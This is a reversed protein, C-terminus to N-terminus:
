GIMGGGEATQVSTGNAYETQPSIESAQAEPSLEPTISQTPEGTVSASPAQTPEQTNEQPTQVGPTTQPEDTIEAQPQKTVEADSGQQTQPSVNSGAIPTGSIANEPADTINQSDTQATNAGSLMVYPINKESWVPWDPQDKIALKITQSNLLERIWNHLSLVQTDAGTGAYYTRVWQIRRSDTQEADTKAMAKVTVSGTMLYQNQYEDESDPLVIRFYEQGTVTDVRVQVKLSLRFTFADKNEFVKGATYDFVHWQKDEEVSSNKGLDLNDDSIELEYLGQEDPVPSLKYEEYRAQKLTEHYLPVRLLYSINSVGNTETVEKRMSIQYNGNLYPNPPDLAPDTVLYNLDAIDIAYDQADEDVKWEIVHRSLEMTNDAINGEALANTSIEPTIEVDEKYKTDTVEPSAMAVQPLQIQAYASWPSRVGNVEKRVRMIVYKGGYAPSFGTEYSGKSLNSGTMSASWLSTNKCLENPDPTNTDEALGSEYLGMQVQYTGAATDTSNMTFKFKLAGFEGETYPAETEQTIGSEDTLLSMGTVDPSTLSEQPDPKPTDGPEETVEEAEDDEFYLDKTSGNYLLHDIAQFLEYGSLEDSHPSISMPKTSSIVKNGDQFKGTYAGSNKDQYIGLSQGVGDRTELIGLNEDSNGTKEAYGWIEWIGAHKGVDNLLYRLHDDGISEIEVKIYYQKSDTKPLTVATVTGSSNIKVSTESVLEEGSDDISSCKTMKYKYTRDKGLWKIYMVRLKNSDNSQNNVNIYFTMNENTSIVPNDWINLWKHHDQFDSYNTLFDLKGSLGNSLASFYTRDLEKGLEIIGEAPPVFYYNGKNYDGSLSVQSVGEKNDAEYRAIPYKMEAVGYCGEFTTTVNSAVTKEGFIGSLDANATGSEGVDSPKGYNRCYQFAVRGSNQFGLIGAHLNSSDCTLDSVNICNNITMNGTGAYSGLIGGIITNSGTTIAARNRSKIITSSKSENWGGVLGGVNVGSTGQATISWNEGTRSNEIKGENVRINSQPLTDATLYGVLGGVSSDTGSSMVQVNEGKGDNNINSLTGALYGVAGGAQGKQNLSVEVNLRGSGSLSDTLSGELTGYIGGINGSFASVVIDNRENENYLDTYDGKAHGILGGVSSTVEQETSNAHLEGSFTNSVVGGNEDSGAIGGLQKVGSQCSVAAKVICKEVAAEDEANEGTINQGTIGGMVEANVINETDTDNEIVIKEINGQNIGAVYGAYQVSAPSLAANEFTIDRITGYNTGVMGLTYGSTALASIRPSEGFTFDKLIMGSGELESGAKLNDIVPFVPHDTGGTGQYVQRHGVIGEEGSWQIELNEDASTENEENELDTDEKSPTYTNGGIGSTEIFRINFLHRANAIAYEQKSGDSDVAMMPEEQTQTSKTLQADTQINEGAVTVSAETIKKDLDLGLRAISYTADYDGSVLGSGSETEKKAAAAADLDVADLVLHIETQGVTKTETYARFTLTKEEEGITAKCTIKNVGYGLLESESSLNTGEFFLTCLPEDAEQFLRVLYNYKNAPNKSQLSWVLELTEENDWEVKRISVRESTDTATGAQTSDYYGLYYQKRLSDWDASERGGVGYQNESHVSSLLEDSFAVTQDCYCVSYVTGTSPNFELRIAADFISEDYVYDKLLKYLPNEKLGDEEKNIQLYRLSDANKVGAASVENADAEEALEELKGGAKYYSMASQSAAFITQAYENNQKYMSYQRYRLIAGVSAALLIALIVCTVIVEVLTFGKNSENKHLRKM